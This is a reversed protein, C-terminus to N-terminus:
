AEPNPKQEAQRARARLRIRRNELGCIAVAAVYVGILAGYALLFLPNHNM